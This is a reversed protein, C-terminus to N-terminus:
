AGAAPLDLAASRGKLHVLIDRQKSIITPLHDQEIADLRDHLRLIKLEARPNVRYDHEAKMRDKIAARNQSMMIVQAQIAALTSLMLTQALHEDLQTAM